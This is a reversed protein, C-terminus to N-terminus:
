KEEGQDDDEDISESSTEFSIASSLAVFNGLHSGAHFADGYWEVCVMLLANAFVWKIYCIFTYSFMILKLINAVCFNEIYCILDWTSGCISSCSKGALFDLPSHFLKGIAQIFGSFVSSVVNEM